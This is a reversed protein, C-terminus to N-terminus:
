FNLGPEEASEKTLEKEEKKPEGTFFGEDVKSKESTKEPPPLKGNEDIVVGSADVILMDKIPPLGWLDPYCLCHAQKVVTKKAMFNPKAKWISFDKKFESIKIEHYFFKPKGDKDNGFKSDYIKCWATIPNPDKEPLLGCEFYLYTPNKKASSLFVHYDIVPAYRMKGTESDKFPMIYIEKKYPSLGYIKATQLFIFADADSIGPCLYDKMQQITPLQLQMGQQGNPIIAPLNASYNLLEEKVIERIKVLLDDVKKNKEEAM